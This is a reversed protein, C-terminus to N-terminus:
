YRLYELDEVYSVLNNVKLIFPLMKQIKFNSVFNKNISYNHLSEILDIANSFIFELLYIFNSNTRYQELFTFSNDDIKEFLKVVENLIIFHKDLLKTKTIRYDKKNRAPFNNKLCYDVLYNIFDNNLLFSNKPNNLYKIINKPNDLKLNFDMIGHNINLLFMNDNVSFNDNLVPSTAYSIFKEDIFGHCILDDLLNFKANNNSEDSYFNYDYNNNKVNELKIENRTINIKRRRIEDQSNYISNKIEKYDDLNIENNDITLIDSEKTIEVKKCFDRVNYNIGDYKINTKYDISYGSSTILKEKLKVIDDEFINKEKELKRIENSLVDIKYDILKHLRKIENFIDNEYESIKSYESINVNKIAMLAFLNSNERIQNESDQNKIKLDKVKKNNSLIINKFNSYDGVINILTRYDHVYKAVDQLVVKNLGNEDVGNNDIINYLNVLSNYSTSIPIVSINFDYFKSRDEYNLFIDDKFAYVFTPKIKVVRAEVLIRNLEKLEEIVMLTITPHFRDIDEFFVVKIKNKSFFYIIENLKKSFILDQKNDLSLENNSVKIRINKNEFILKIIREVLVVLFILYVILIIALLNENNFIKRFFIKDYVNKVYKNLFNFIFCFLPVICIYTLYIIRFIKSKNSEVRKLSSGRMENSYNQYVLQKLISKEIKDVYNLENIDNKSYGMPYEFGDEDLNNLNIFSSTSITLSDKKKCYYNKYNEIITSKGSGYGGSLSINHIEPDKIAQYLETIYKRIYINKNIDLTKPGLKKASILDVDNKLFKKKKFKDILKSIIVM